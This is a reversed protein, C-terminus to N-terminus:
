VSRWSAIVGDVGLQVRLTHAPLALATSANALISIERGIEGAMTVCRMGEKLLLCPHFVELRFRLCVSLVKERIRATVRVDANFTKDKSAARWKLCTM